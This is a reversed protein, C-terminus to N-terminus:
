LKKKNFFELGMNLFFVYNILLPAFYRSVGYGGTFIMYYLIILINLILFYYYNNIKKMFFIKYLLNLFGLLCLLYIISSYIIRIKLDKNLDKYYDKISKDLSFFKHVYIPDLISAQCSKYVLYKFSTFPYKIVLKLFENNRYNIIKFKDKFENDQILNNKRWEKEKKIKINYSQDKSIQTAKSFIDDYMYHYNSYQNSHYPLIFFVGKKIYHLNGILLIISLYGTLLYIIPKFNKKYVFIFFIILPIFLFVSAARQAFIFGLIIGITLNQFFGKKFEIVKAMLILNLSLFISESWFSSHWQILTPEFSLFFVILFLNKENIYKKLKQSFYFLSFYFFLIQIILFGIKYNDKKFIKINDSNEEVSIDENIALYYLGVLISPLFSRDYIPLSNVFGEKERIKKVFDDSKSWISYIDSFILSNVKQGNSLTRYNAYKSINYNSIFINIIVAILIIIFIKSNHKLYM